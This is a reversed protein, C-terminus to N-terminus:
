SFNIASDALSFKKKFQHINPLTALLFTISENVEKMTKATYQGTAYLIHSIWTTAQLKALHETIKFVKKV